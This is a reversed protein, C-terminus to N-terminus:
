YDDSDSDPSCFKPSMTKNNLPSLSSSPGEFIPDEFPDESILPVKLKFSTNRTRRIEVEHEEVNLHM